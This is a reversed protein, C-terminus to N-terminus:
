SNWPRKYDLLREVDFDYDNISQIVQTQGRSYKTTNVLDSLNKVHNDGIPQGIHGRPDNLYPTIEAVFNKEQEAYAEDTDLRQEYFDRIDRIMTEMTQKDDTHQARKEERHEQILARAGSLFESSKESVVEVRKAKADVLIGELTKLEDKLEKKQKVSVLSFDDALTELQNELDYIETNLQEITADIEATPEKIQTIFATAGKITMNNM